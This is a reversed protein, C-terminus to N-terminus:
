GPPTFRIKKAIISLAVAAGFFFSLCVNIAQSTGLSDVMMGLPVPVGNFLYVTIYFYSILRAPNRSTALQNILRASGVFIAGYAYGGIVLGVAALMLSTYYFGVLLILLAVGQALLGSLLARRADLRQCLLQSAGAILLYASISYGFVGHDNLGLLQEASAPGMVFVCAAFSWSFFVSWACLHFPLGIGRLSAVLSMPKADRDNTSASREISQRPWLLLAGLLATLNLVMILWFPLALPYLKLQLAAGSLVPGLALGIVMALTALLAALKGNDAPGFRVLTLNVGTTIAGAGFGAILRATCLAELSHGRSFLGAGIFVLLAAPILLVRLDKLRGALSATTMLSLLVGAGYSGFIFTLDVASLHLAEQFSPYLPTPASSNMLSVMLSLALFFLFGTSTKKPAHDSPIPM